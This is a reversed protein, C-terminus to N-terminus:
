KSDLRPFYPVWLSPSRILFFRSSASNISILNAEGGLFIERLALQLVGWLKGLSYICGRPRGFLPSSDMWEDSLQRCLPSAGLPLWRGGCTRSNGLLPKTWARAMMTPGAHHLWPPTRFGHSSNMLDNTGKVNLPSTIM